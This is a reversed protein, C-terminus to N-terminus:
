ATHQAPLVVQGSLGPSRVDLKINLTKVKNGHKIQAVLMGGNAQTAIIPLQLLNDGKALDTQWELSRQGPYGALMVNDPLQISIQAGQVDREANFVLKVDRTENLAITVLSQGPATPEGQPPLVGVVFWLALGAVLASGFGAAFGRRHHHDVNQEVAQRLVREAFDASPGAMPMQKLDALLGEAKSLKQGCRACTEAHERFSVQQAVSLTGDLYDDLQNYFDNCNM